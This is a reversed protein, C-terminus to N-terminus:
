WRYGLGLRVGSGRIGHNEKSLMLNWVGALNVSWHETFQYDVMASYSFGKTSSRQAPGELLQTRGLTAREDTLTTRTNSWGYLVSGSLSVKSLIQYSGELGIFVTSSRFIEKVGPITIGLQPVPQNIHTKLRSGTWGAQPMFSLGDLCPTLDGMPVYFGLATTGAEYEGRGGAFMLAPKFVFGSYIQFYGDARFGEMDLQTVTRGHELVDLHVYVPGADIRGSASLNLCALLSAVVTAATWRLMKM